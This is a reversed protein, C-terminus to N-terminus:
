NLQYVPDFLLARLKNDRGTGAAAGLPACCLLIKELDVDSVGLALDDLFSDGQATKQMQMGPKRMDQGRLARSVFTRRAILTSSDIWAIGGPWGKVNPPNFLLQGMAKASNVLYRKDDVELGLSRVTGAILQVPSKILSGRNEEAWFHGCEFIARLLGSIDYDSERFIKALRTVEQPDPEPSIFEKWFKQTIFEATANQELIIAVIDDADLSGTKGLFTKSGADHRRADITFDLNKDLTWGSLARAAAKIDAETYNGVGLSFLELIERALNENPKGKRNSRNDLYILMAPDRIIGKLLDAYSGLANSRLLMFQDFILQTQRVKFWSSTFHNQWFLTMRETLPSMGHLLQAMHWDQLERWWRRYQENVQKRSLGSPSRGPPNDQDAFLRPQGTWVPPTVQFATDASELILEIAEERTLRSLAIVDEPAEDFGSRSALHRADALSMSLASFSIGWFLVGAILQKIM